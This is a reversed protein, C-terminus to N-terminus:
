GRQANRKLYDLFQTESANFYAYMPDYQDITTLMTINATVLNGVDVLRRSIRGSVPATIHTFDLNLKASAM